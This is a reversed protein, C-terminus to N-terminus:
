YTLIAAGFSVGAGAGWLLARQGRQLAGTHVAEYLNVPICAAVANGLRELTNVGVGAPWPRDFMARLGALSPQHPIVVDIGGLDRSLGPQVRELFPDSRNLCFQMLAPGNMQFVNDAAVTDPHNPPRRSGGGRVETLHAVRSYTEFRITDIRSQTSRSLIVAAAADGFLSLAEREAGDLGISAIESSVVAIHDHTGAAIFSGAVQLGHLFSLCTAHVTLCPIGSDELGLQRQILPGGDPILQEQTGSANMILGLSSAPLDAQALAEQIAQAAMWANTEGLDPEAWRRERVGCHTAIWDAPVDCMAAIEANTVIREPLYRGMGSIRVPWDFAM